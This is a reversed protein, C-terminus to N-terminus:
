ARLYRNIWVMGSEIKAAVKHARAVDKTFVAAGLGYTTSNARKIAEAETSFKGIVVFPGFVEEQFITHHDEVDRFITPAVFNVEPHEGGSVLVAGDKKGKEVYALVREYQQRSVQPGHNTDESFPDGLVSIKKTYTNFQEIFKGDDATTSVSLSIHSVSRRM